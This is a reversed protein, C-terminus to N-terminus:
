KKNKMKRYMKGAARMSEKNSANPHTRLYEKKLRQIEKGMMRLREIFEVSYQKM